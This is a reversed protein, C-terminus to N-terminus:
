KEPAAQEMRDEADMNDLAYRLCQLVLSTFSVNHEKALTELEDVMLEPMRISKTILDQGSQIKFM